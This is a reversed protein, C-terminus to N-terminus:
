LSGSKATRVTSEVLGTSDAERSAASAASTARQRAGSAASRGAVAASSASARSRTAAEQATTLRPLPRPGAQPRHASQSRVGPDTALKPPLEKIAVARGPQRNRGALLVGYGGRGLEAGIEYGPLIAALKQVDSV